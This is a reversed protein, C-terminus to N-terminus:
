GPRTAMGPGGWRSRNGAAKLEAKISEVMQRAGMARQDDMIFIAGHFCSEYLYLTPARQMLWNTANLAMPPVKAYYVIPADVPTDPTPDFRFSNGARSFYVVGSTSGEAVHRDTQEDPSMYQLKRRPSSDIYGSRFELFDTPITVYEGTINLVSRTEMEPMRLTNNFSEEASVIFDPITSTLDSRGLYAAVSAKLGTYTGDLAM